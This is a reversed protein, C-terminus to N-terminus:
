LQIMQCIWRWTAQAATQSGVRIWTRGRMGTRWLAQWKTSDQSNQETLHIRVQYHPQALQGASPGAPIAPLESGHINLLQQPASDVARTAVSQITGLLTEGPYADLKVVAEQGVHLYEVDNQSVIAVAVCQDTEAVRCIVAGRDMWAGINAPKLLTQKWGTLRDTTSLSAPRIEVVEPEPIVRGSCPARVVLSDIKEHVGALQSEIDKMALQVSQTTAPDLVATAARSRIRLADLQQELQEAQLQLQPADLQVLPEHKVVQQGTAVHIAALRSRTSATVLSIREPELTFVSYVKHPLPAQFFALTLGSVIGFMALPRWWSVPRLLGPQKIVRVLGAGLPMLVLNSLTLATLVWGIAALKYPALLRSFFWIMAVTLMVRYISALVAYACFAFGASGPAAERTGWFWKTLYYRAFAYSRPRLNPVELYDSLVYYGDFRMLPNANILITQVSGILMASFAISHVVGPATLWWVFTAISAILMEVYIGASAIAIRRWKNPLMWSDSVDCYMCPTFCMLLLGMAHCEGGFHRCTLGHGFEHLIKIVGATAWMWIINQVNFFAQISRMEPQGVFQDFRSVILVAASLMTALGILLGIPHFLFKVCPYIWHLIPEPDFAHIKVYLIRSFAATWRMGDNRQPLAQTRGTMNHRDHLLGASQWRLIIQWLEEASLQVPPIQASLAQQLGDLTQEGELRDFVQFEAPAFRFYKLTLPDKVVYSVQGRCFQKQVTLDARRRPLLPSKLKGTSAAGRSASSPLPLPFSVTSM